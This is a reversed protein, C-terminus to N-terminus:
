AGTTSFASLDIGDLTGEDEMDPMDPIAAQQALLSDITPAPTTPVAPAPAPAATQAPTTAPTVQIPATSMNGENPAPLDTAVVSQLAKQYRETFMPEKVARAVDLEKILDVHKMLNEAMNDDEMCYGLSESQMFSYNTIAQKIAQESVGSTARRRVMDSDEAVGGFLNILRPYQDPFQNRFCFQDHLGQPTVAAGSQGKDTDMPFAWEVELMGNEDIEAYKKDRLISELRKALKNSVPQCAVVAADLQPKDDKWPVVLAEVTILLTPRSIVPKIAHRNDKTNYEEEISAITTRRLTENSYEKQEAERIRHHKEGEIFLPALRSFRNLIDPQGIPDGNEDYNCLSPIFTTKLGLKKMDNVKHGWCQGAILQRMNTDEDIYTRYYARLTSGPEWQRSFMRLKQTAERSQLAGSLSVLKM